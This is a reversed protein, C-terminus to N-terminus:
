EGRIKRDLYGTLLFSDGAGKKVVLCHLPEKREPGPLAPLLAQGIPEVQFGKSRGAESADGRAQSSSPWKRTGRWCASSGSTRSGYRTEMSM